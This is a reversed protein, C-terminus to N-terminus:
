HKEHFELMERYIRLFFESREDEFVWFGILMENLKWIWDNICWCLVECFLFFFWFVWCISVFCFFRYKNKHKHWKRQWKWTPYSIAKPYFSLNLSLVLSLNLSLVLSISFTAQITLKQITKEFWIKLVDVWSDTKLFYIYLPIKTWFVKEQSFFM